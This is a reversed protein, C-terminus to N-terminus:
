QNFNNYLENFKKKRDAQLLSRTQEFRFRIDYDNNNMLHIFTAKLSGNAYIDNYNLNFFQKFIFGYSFGFEVPSKLIFDDYTMYLPLERWLTPYFSLLRFPLLDVNCDHSLVEESRLQQALRLYDFDSYLRSVLRIVENPSLQLEKYERINGLKDRIPYSSLTTFRKIAKYFRLDSYKFSLPVDLYSYGRLETEVYRHKYPDYLKFFDGKDYKEFLQLKYSDDSLSFGQCPPFYRSVLSYSSVDYTLDQQKPDRICPRQILGNILIDQVEKYDNKFAGIIPNKSCLHFTRFSKTQLIQPLHSCGNVYKAVYQPASGSILQVDIRSSDCFTWAKHILRPLEDALRQSDCHITGHYHPRQYITGYEAAVFYRIKKDYCNLTDKFEYDIYRRLRKMFLQIDQKCVVGFSDDSLKTIHKVGLDDFSKKTVLLSQKVPMNVFNRNLKYVTPCVRVLRPVHENDYTLTFFFNFLHQKCENVLRQTLATSRAHLCSPCRRCPVYMVQGVYKNYIRLPKYCKTNPKYDQIGKIGFTHDFIKM